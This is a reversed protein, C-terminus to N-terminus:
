SAGGAKLQQQPVYEEVRTTTKQSSGGREKITALVKRKLEALQGKGAVDKLASEIGKQTAKRTVAADAVAQGYAARLVDYAIDGDIALNGVSPNPGFMRGGGVAFPKEAARAYLAADIRKLLMRLRKALEYADAADADDRFPATMEVRKTIADSRVLTTLQQQAPCAHFAPCYRCAGSPKPVGGVRSRVVIDRLEHGYADLEFADMAHVDLPRVEHWIAVDAVFVGHTRTAMLALTRLQHNRAARAVHPSFSKRDVIVVEDVPGRGELDATGAVEDPHLAGYKRKIGVGLERAIGTEVNIAYAVESRWTYGPWREDLVAPIDGANVDSELEDHLEDGDDQGAHKEVVHPLSFAAPCADALHVSSATIM